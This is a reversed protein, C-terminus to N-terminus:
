ATPKGLWNRFAKRREKRVTLVTNLTKDDATELILTGIADKPRDTRDNHQWITHGLTTPGYYATPVGDKDVTGLADLLSQAEVGLVYAAGGIACSATFGQHAQPKYNIDQDKDEQLTGKTKPTPDEQMAKAVQRVTVRM